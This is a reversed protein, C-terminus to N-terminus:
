RVIGVRNVTQAEVPRHRSRAHDQAGCVPGPPGAETAGHDATSTAVSSRSPTIVEGRQGALGRSVIQVRGLNVSTTPVGHTRKDIVILYQADVPLSLRLNDIRCETGHRTPKVRIAIGPIARGALTHSLDVLGM